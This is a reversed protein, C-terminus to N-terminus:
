SMSIVSAVVEESIQYQLNMYRLKYAVLVMGRELTQLWITKSENVIINNM